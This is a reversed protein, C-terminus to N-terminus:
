GGTTAGGIPYDQSDTRATRMIGEIQSVVQPNQAAVNKSEGPDDRLNYLEIPAKAGNRIGKWDGMRVAQKYTKRVHGYDWYLYDHNKQPKGLLEPLMSIGDIDKPVPLGALEAATPLFDWFAWVRDSVCGAPVKGPWRATMPIRIGGEYLDRKGGRLPGNSDFFERPPAAGLYPGNDSTFFLITNEDIGLKKILELIRGVDRDMRTIMAAYNKAIQPWDKDTYPEDSPVMYHDPSDAPYDSFHPLTYALYLFFPDERHREIFSVAKETFLDHTYKIRQGGRNGVMKGVDNVMVLDQMMVIRDNEWLHTPYYYIALDQKLHGYWYDFGQYNPVGWSGPDGLAWKGIAGTKYGAQKLVEAVTLDDPQLFINHPLNDRIRNHGNHMGTMLSCRSPACVTSGAYCQTFRMGEDALRDINPTLTKEQGYCGLDGYGLDDAVILIINPGPKLSAWARMPWPLALAAAGAGIAKLLQRRGLRNKHM